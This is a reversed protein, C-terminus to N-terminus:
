KNNIEAKQLDLYAKIEREDASCMKHHLYNQKGYPHLNQFTQNRKEPKILNETLTVTKQGRSHM